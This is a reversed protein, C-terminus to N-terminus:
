PSPQPNAEGVVDVILEVTNNSHLQATNVEMTKGKFDRFEASIAKIQTSTLNITVAKGRANTIKTIQDKTLTLAMTDDTDGGREEAIVPYVFVCVLLVIILLPIEPIFSM